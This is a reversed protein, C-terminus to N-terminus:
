TSSEYWSFFLLTNPTLAQAFVIGPKQGRIWSQEGIFPHILDYVHLQVGM